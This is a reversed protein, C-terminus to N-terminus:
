LGEIIIKLFKASKRTIDHKENVYHLKINPNIGSLKKSKVKSVVLDFRGYVIHMPVKINELERITQQGIVTNRLSKVFPLWADDTLKVSNLKKIRQGFLNNVSIVFPPKGAIYEYLTKRLKISRTSDLLLPPQYLIAKKVRSPRKYTMHSAILCGMSHGMIIFQDNKKVDYKLQHFISKSHEDVSYKMWTPKPSDGFGLLDYAVIRYKYPELQNIVPEWKAARAGLGHILLIIQPGYGIDITKKLKYPRRLTRHWILEKM